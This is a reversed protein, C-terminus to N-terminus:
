LGGSSFQKRENSLSPELFRIGVNAGNQWRAEAWRREASNNGVQIWFTAPVSFLSDFRLLAGSNSLDHITCDVILQPEHSIIKAGKFVRRRPEQRRQLSINRRDEEAPTDTDPIQRRDSNQAYTGGIPNNAQGHESPGHSLSHHISQNTLDSLCTDLLEQSSSAGDELRKSSLVPVIAVDVEDIRRHLELDRRIRQQIEAAQDDSLDTDFIWALTSVDIHGMLSAGVDVLEAQKAFDRFLIESNKSGVIKRLELMDAIAAAIITVGTGLKQRCLDDLFHTVYYESYLETLSDTRQHQRLLTNEHRISKAEFDRKVAREIAKLLEDRNFRQKSVYDSFGIRFAKIATMESGAGTVLVMPPPDQYRETITQGISFGTELGLDYDLVVCDIARKDLQEFLELGSGAEVPALGTSTQVAAAIAGRFLPDDDVIAIHRGSLIAM